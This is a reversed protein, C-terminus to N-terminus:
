EMDGLITRVLLYAIFSRAFQHMKADSLPQKTTDVRWIWHARLSTLVVKIQSKNTLMFGLLEALGNTSQCFRYDFFSLDGDCYLGILTTYDLLTVTMEGFLLQFTHTTDSWWEILAIMMTTDNQVRLSHLTSAL